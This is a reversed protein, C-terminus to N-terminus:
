HNQQSRWSWWEEILDEQLEEHVDFQRIAHYSAIFRTVREERMHMRVPCGMLEYNSYDLNQGREDEIIMNHMIVCANMIYWLIEQDWFRTPGRVVAILAQLIGFVREVYKRTAAQANRFDLQKKNHPKYVLKVFIQWKPYIDEALYYDYNYTRDNAIFEVM